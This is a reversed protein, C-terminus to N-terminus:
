IGDGAAVGCRREHSTAKEEKEIATETERLFLVGGERL